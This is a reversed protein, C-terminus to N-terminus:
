FIGWKFQLGVSLNNMIEDSLESSSDIDNAITYYAGIAIRFKKTINFDVELGPEVALFVLDSYMIESHDDFKQIRGVWGGGLMIPMSFHVVKSSYFIPEVIFGGYGGSYNYQINTTLNQKDGYFGYGGFGFAIKHNIIWGGRGGIFITNSNEVTGYKITVAGYLGRSKDSSKFIIKQEWKSTTDVYSKLPYSNNVQTSLETDTQAETTNSLLYISTFLLLKIHLKM